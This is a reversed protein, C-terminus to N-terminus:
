RDTVTVAGEGDISLNWTMTSATSSLADTVNLALRHDGPRLKFGVEYTIHAPTTGSVADGPLELPLENKQIPASAGQDDEVYFAFELQGQYVDGGVPVMTLSDIPIRIATQVVWRRGAPEAVPDFEVAIGLPNESQGAIMAM